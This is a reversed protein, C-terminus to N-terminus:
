DNAKETTGVSPSTENNASYPNKRFLCDSAIVSNGNTSAWAGEEALIEIIPRGICIPIRAANRERELRKAVQVHVADFEGGGEIDTARLTAADTEPTDSSSSCTAEADEPKPETTTAVKGKRFINDYNNHYTNLDVKRPLSGKGAGTGFSM